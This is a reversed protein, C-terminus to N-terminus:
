IPVFHAKDTRRLSAAEELHIGLSYGLVLVVSVAAVIAGVLIFGMKRASLGLGFRGGILGAGLVFCLFLVARSEIGLVLSSFAEFALAAIIILAGKWAAVKAQIAALTGGLVSAALAIHTLTTEDM